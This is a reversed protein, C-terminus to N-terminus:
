DNERCPPAGQLIKDGSGCKIPCCVFYCCQSILSGGGGSFFFVFILQVFLVDEWDPVFPCQRGM